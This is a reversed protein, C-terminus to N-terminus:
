NQNQKDASYEWGGEQESLNAPLCIGFSTVPKEVGDAFVREIGKDGQTSDPDVIYLLLLPRTRHVQGEGLDITTDNASNQVIRFNGNQTSSRNVLGIKQGHINIKKAIDPTHLGVNWKPLWENDEILKRLNNKTDSSGGDPLLDHYCRLFDLIFEGDVGKSVSFNTAGSKPEESPYGDLLGVLKKLEAYMKRNHPISDEGIEPTAWGWVTTRSLGGWTRSIAEEKKEPSTLHMGPHERIWIEQELPDANAPLNQIKLRLDHEENTIRVYDMRIQETTLIRVLDSYKPRYGCWRAMQLMTDYKPEKARRSFWSTTLGQLTLGRSLRTGGIAILSRPGFSYDLEEPSNEGEERPRRNVEIIGIGDLIDTFKDFDIMLIGNLKELLENHLKSTLCYEDVLTIFKLYIQEANSSDSFYNDRLTRVILAIRRHENVEVATHILTTHHNNIGRLKKIENTLIHRSILDRMADQEEESYDVFEPKIMVNSCDQELFYQENDFHGRPKGLAHLMDRPHLSLGYEDEVQSSWPHSLLNAFPTATYGIYWCSKAFQFQKVLLRLQRNTESPNDDVIEEGSENIQDDGGTDMSAHDAEDDIILVKRKSLIAPNPLCNRLIELVTHNKKVVIIMPKPVSQLFHQQIKPLFVTDGTSLDSDKSPLIQPQIGSYEVVSQKVRGVTQKRLDDILGSLVIVTDYPVENKESDLAHLILGILHATKGSQIRGIVLGYGPRNEPPNRLQPKRVSLRNVTERVNEDVDNVIDKPNFESDEFAKLLHSLYHSYIGSLPKHETLLTKAVAGSSSAYLTEIFATKEEESLGYEELFEDLRGESDAKRASFWDINM